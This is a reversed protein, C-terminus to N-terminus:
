KTYTIYLHACQGDSRFYNTGDSTYLCLSSIIGAKYDNIASVPINFTASQGWALSGIRGYNRSAGAHGGSGLSNQTSGWLYISTASSSGGGNKRRIYLSASNITSGSISSRCSSPPLMYGVHNGYGYNGQYIDKTDQWYGNSSYSWSSLAWNGNYTTTPPVPPATYVSNHWVPSNMQILQGSSYTYHLNGNTADYAPRTSGNNHVGVHITAGYYTTWVTRVNGILDYCYLVAGESVQAMTMIRSIDCWRFIVNSSGYVLIGYSAIDQSKGVLRFSNIYCKSTNDVSFIGSDTYTVSSLVTGDNSNYSTRNGDFYIRRIINNSMRIPSTLEIILTKSFNFLLEGNGAFGNIYFNDKFTGSGMVEIRIDTDIVLFSGSYFRDAMMGSISDYATSEAKGDKTANNSGYKVYITEKKGDGSSPEYLTKINSAYVKSAKLISMGTEEALSGIEEDEKTGKKFIKFGNSDMKTYTGANSHRVTLGSENFDAISNSISNSNLQIIHGSKSEKYTGTKASDFVTVWNTGDASVETKTAHYSRFDAWYHWVKLMDISEYVSGLDIRVWQSGSSISAYPNSEINGDTLTASGSVTASGTVTKGKAVNVGNNDIAQIECWRNGSDATSGNLWDRIYRIKYVRNLNSNIQIQFNSDTLKTEASNLRATHSTVTDNITTVDSETTAVRTTIKGLETKTEAVQSKVSSVESVTDQLTYDCNTLDYVECSAVYWVLHSSSTPATGDTLYFHGGSSFSGDAGCVIERIYETYKGTGEIPTLIRDTAGNGLSNTATKLNKGVPIKAVVRILFKANARSNLSVHFGGFGPTTPTGTVRVELCNTSKTPCDAPKAIRSLALAAGGANNYAVCSNYGKVFMPDTYVLKGKAMALALRESNVAKRNANTANINATTATSNASDATSKATDATSKATNATSQATNATNTVTTVKSETFSVRSTISNVDLVLQASESKVTEVKVDVDNISESVDQVSPSWSTAKNGKEMQLSHLFCTGAQQTYFVVVKNWDTPNVTTTVTFRQYEASNITIATTNHREFGILFKHGATGKIYGSLTYQTNEIFPVVDSQYTGQSGATSVIRIAKKSTSVSDDQVSLEGGNKNWHNLGKNFGSNKLLNTGGVVVGAVKASSISDLAEQVRQKYTSLKGRYNTFANNVETIEASTAKKDDIANNIKTKLATHSSDYAIKATGIDIKATGTLNDNGNISAYEKDVDAKETDLLNLNQAIAITEAEQIVGDKFTSNVTNEFDSLGKNIDEISSDVDEPAPTWDSVVSGKEVQIDKVWYERDYINTDEQFSHSYVQLNILGNEEMDFTYVVTVYEGIGEFERGIYSVTSFDTDSYKRSLRICAQGKPIGRQKKLKMSLTHKGKELFVASSNTIYATTNTTFKYYLENGTVSTAQEKNIHAMQLYNRGGVNLNDLKDNVTNVTGSVEKVTTETSSVRQTIGDLSQQFQTQKTEVDTVKGFLNSVDTKAGDAIAKATNATSTANDAKNGITTISSSHSGVTSNLGNVTQELNSYEDKLKVTSGNKEITTDKVLTEIKGQQMSIATTNTTITSIASDIQAQIDEPAPTWDTAKNGKEIKPYTVLARDEIRANDKYFYFHSIATVDKDVNTTFSYDVKFWKNLNAETTPQSPIQYRFTETTNDSYLVRVYGNMNTTAQFKTFKYYFSVNYTGNSINIVKKLAFGFNNSTNDKNAEVSYLPANQYMENTPVFICGHAYLNNGLLLNRGGIEIDNAVQWKNDKWVKLVPPTPTTDLWLMDATPKIPADAGTYIDNYDVITFQGTAITM